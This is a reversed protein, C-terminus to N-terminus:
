RISVVSKATTLCRNKKSHEDTLSSAVILNLASLRVCVDFLDDTSQLRSAIKHVDNLVSKVETVEDLNLVSNGSELYKKLKENEIM